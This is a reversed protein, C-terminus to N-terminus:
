LNVLLTHIRSSSLVLILNKHLKYKMKEGFCVCKGENSKILACMLIPFHKAKEWTPFINTSSGDATYILMLHFTLLLSHVSKGNHRRKIIHWLFEIFYRIVNNFFLSFLNFYIQTSFLKIIVKEEDLKISPM